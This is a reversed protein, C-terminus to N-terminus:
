QCALRSRRWAFLGTVLSAILLSALVVKTRPGILPKKYAAQPGGILVLRNQAEVMGDEALEMMAPLAEAAEPGTNSAVIMADWATRKNGSKMRSVLLPIAARVKRCDIRSLAVASCWRVGEDPDDLMEVLRPLADGGAPGVGGLAEVAIARLRQDEMMDILMPVALAADPGIRGLAEASNWRVGCDEDQLADILDAVAEKSEPGLDGLAQAASKRVHVIPNKLELVLTPIIARHDSGILAMARAAHVRVAGVPDELKRALAPLASRGREGTLGLEDAAQLRVLSDPHDLDSMLRALDDTGTDEGVMIQDNGGVKWAAIPMKLSARVRWLQLHKGRLMKQSAVVYRQDLSSDSLAVANIIADRGELMARVDRRLKATSGLYAISLEPRGTTMAWWPGELPASEYWYDGLCTLCSNDTQFCVALNGTEKAEEAWDLIVHAERPHTGGMISHKVDSTPCAGKLDAVKQFVIAQKEFSVKDVRVVYIHDSDKILKGLSPAGGVYALAPSSLGCLATCCCLIRFM